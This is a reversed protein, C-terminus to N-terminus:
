LQAFAEEAERNDELYRILSGRILPQLQTFTWASQEVYNKRQEESLLQPASEAVAQISVDFPWLPEDNNKLDLFRLDTDAQFASETLASRLGFQPLASIARNAADQGISRFQDM